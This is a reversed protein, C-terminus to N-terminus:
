VCRRVSGARLQRAANCLGKFQDVATQRKLLLTIAERVLPDETPERDQGMYLYFARTGPQHTITMGQSADSELELVHGLYLARWAIDVERNRVADRLDQSREYARLQIAHRPRNPASIM